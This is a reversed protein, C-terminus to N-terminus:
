RPNRMAVGKATPGTRRSGVGGGLDGPLAGHSGPKTSTHLFFTGLTLELRFATKPRRWTRRQIGCHRVLGSACREMRLVHVGCARVHTLKQSWRGKMHDMAPARARQVDVSGRDALQARQALQRRRSPSNIRSLSYRTDSPPRSWSRHVPTITSPQTTSVM